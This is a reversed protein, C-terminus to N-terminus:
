RIWPIRWGCERSWLRTVVEIVDQILFALTVRVRLADSIRATGPWHEILMAIAFARFASLHISIVSAKFIRLRCHEALVPCGICTGLARFSAFEPVILVCPAGFHGRSGLVISLM